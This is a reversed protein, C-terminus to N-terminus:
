RAAPPTVNARPSRTLLPLQSATCRTSNPAAVLAMTMQLSCKAAASSRAAGTLSRVAVTLASASLRPTTTTSPPTCALRGTSAAAPAQSTPATTSACAM